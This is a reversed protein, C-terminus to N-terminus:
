LELNKGTMTLNKGTVDNFISCFKVFTAQRQSPYVWIEVLRLGTKRSMSRRCVLNRILSCWMVFNGGPNSCM